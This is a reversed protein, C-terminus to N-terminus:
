ATTQNIAHVLSTFEDTLDKRQTLILQTIPKLANRLGSISDTNQVSRAFEPTDSFHNLCFDGLAFQAEIIDINDGLRWTLNQTGASNNKSKDM